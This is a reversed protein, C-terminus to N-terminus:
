AKAAQKKVEQAIVVDKAKLKIELEKGLNNSIIKVINDHYEIKADQSGRINQVMAYYEDKTIDLEITTILM